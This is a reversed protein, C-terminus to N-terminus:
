PCQEKIFLNKLFEINLEKPYISIFPINTEKLIKIKNKMKIEYEKNRVFGFFEVFIKEKPLYWDCRKTNLKPNNFYDSYLVEKIYEINNDIFFDTIFVESYSYCADNNKSFLIKPVGFFSFNSQLGIIDCAKRYGGFRRAYTRLSPLGNEKLEYHIPTRGLKIAVEKLQIM